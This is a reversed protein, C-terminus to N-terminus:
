QSAPPMLIKTGPTPEEGNGFLHRNATQLDAAMSERGYERRAISAWTDGPRVVYIRRAPTAGGIAKLTTSGTANWEQYPPLEQAPRKKIVTKATPAITAAVPTAVSPATGFRYTVSIRQRSDLDKVLGFAYDFSLAKALFGVGLSLGELDSGRRYGVRFALPGVAKEVGAGPALSGNDLYYPLDLFLRAALSAPFLATESGVRLTRALSSSHNGYRLATGFNQASVGIRSGPSVNIQGGIDLAMASAHDAEALTTSFFKGSIGVSGRGISRALGAVAALDKEATINRVLVGDDSANFTGSNYYGLSGGWSWAPAPAGLALHAYSDDIAGRQYLVGLENSSLTSLLAPNYSLGGIDDSVAVFADGLAAARASPAELLTLGAQNERSRAQAPLLCVLGLVAQAGAILVPRFCSTRKM